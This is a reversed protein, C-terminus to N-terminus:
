NVGSSTTGGNENHWGIRDSIRGNGLGDHIVLFRNEGPGPPKDFFLTHTGSAGGPPPQFASDPLTENLNTYSLRVLEFGGPHCQRTQRVLYTEKDIWWENKTAWSMGDNSVNWSELRCCDHGDLVADSELVVPQEAMAKKVSWENLFFPDAIVINRKTVAVPTKDLRKGDKQNESYLWCDRGDCGLIFADTGMIASVDGYAQNTGQWKFTGTESEISECANTNLNLRITQVTEVGSHLRTRADKMATLLQILAPDSAAAAIKERYNASFKEDETQYHLVIKEAALGNEGHFGLLNIRADNDAPLLLPITFRHAAADYDISPILNPGGMGIREPLHPLLETPPQMPQDFTVELFTLESSPGSAPKIDIAKPATGGAIVPNPKTAFSWEFEAAAIGHADRFAPGTAHVPTNSGAAKDGFTDWRYNVALTQKVGPMLCVPLVFEKRDDSVQVGSTLQFGGKHWTVSLYRPDMARDFRIRVDERCDLDAAGDAPFVSVVRPIGAKVDNAPPTTIAQKDPTKVPSSNDESAGTLAIGAMLVVVGAAAWRWRPGGQMAIARLRRKIDAKSEAIGVLGPLVRRKTSLSELIKVITEGYSVRDSHGAAGLALDDAALERDARLRAFALWLVPNFWHVIQLIGILWNLEPDRRKLHAMEHLIVHRLESHNLERCLSRPLILRKRFVGFIAPSDIIDTALFPVGARVQISQACEYFLANLAPEPASADRALARAFRFNKWIFRAGFLVVGALWIITLYITKDLPLSVPTPAPKPAVHATSATMPARQATVFKAPEATTAPTVDPIPTAPPILPVVPKLTATEVPATRHQFIKQANFVSFASGPTAPMLLRAVLVLWLAHRWAPSLRRRLLWQTLLILVAIIAAQWSTQTIWGFLREFWHLTNM